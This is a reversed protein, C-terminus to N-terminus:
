TSSISQVPQVTQQIIPRESKRVVRRRVQKKLDGIRVNVVQRQIQAQTLKESPKRVPKKKIVKNEKKVKIPM